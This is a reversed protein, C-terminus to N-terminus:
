TNQQRGTNNPKEEAESEESDIRNSRTKKKRQGEILKFQPRQSHTYTHTSTQKHTHTHAHIHPHFSRWTDSPKTLIIKYKATVCTQQEKQEILGIDIRAHVNCYHQWRIIGFM